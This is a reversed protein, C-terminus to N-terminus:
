GIAHCVAYRIKCNEHDFFSLIVKIIPKAEEVEEIYEGLQSLAMLAAFKYRWDSHQLLAQVKESVIPLM